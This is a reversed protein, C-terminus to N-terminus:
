SLQAPNMMMKSREADFTFDTGDGADGGARNMQELKSQMLGFDKLNKLDNMLSGSSEFGPAPAGGVGQDHAAAAAAAAATGAEMAVTSAQPEPLM